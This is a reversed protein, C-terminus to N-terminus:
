PKTRIYLEMVGVCVTFVGSLVFFVISAVSTKLKASTEEPAEAEKQGSPRLRSLLIVALILGGVGAFHIWIPITKLNSLGLSGNIFLASFNFALHAAMSAAISGTCFVLYGLMLGALFTPIVETVGNLVHFMGFLIASFVFGYRPYRVEYASQIIGRFLLEECIPALVLMGILLLISQITSPAGTLGTDVTGFSRDLLLGTMKSLYFAFFWLSVSAAMGTLIHKKQAKQLKFVKEVPMKGITVLLVSPALIWLFENIWLNTGLGLRPALLGSGALLIVCVMLYLLNAQMPTPMKVKM